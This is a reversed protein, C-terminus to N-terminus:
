QISIGDITTTITIITFRCHRRTARHLTGVSAKRIRNPPNNRGLTLEFLLQAQLEILAVNDPFQERTEVLLNLAQRKNDAAILKQAQIMATTVTSNETAGHADIGAVVIFLILVVQFIHAM